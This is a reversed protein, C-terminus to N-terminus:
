ISYKINFSVYDRDELKNTTGVGDFFSNYTIDAAWRSQYDFSLGLSVSKRKEIFLFLPDPTIGDVDHSFVVRPSMNVGAFVNTYDLKGVLRYGWTL